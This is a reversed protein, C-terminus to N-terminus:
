LVQASTRTTLLHTHILTYMWIHALIYTLCHACTQVLPLSHTCIPPLSPFSTLTICHSGKFCFYILM